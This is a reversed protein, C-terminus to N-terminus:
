ISCREREVSKAEKWNDKMANDMLISISEKETILTKFGFGWIFQATLHTCFALAVKPELKSKGLMGLVM